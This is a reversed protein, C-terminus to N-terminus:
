SLKSFSISGRSFALVIFHELWAWLPYTTFARIWKVKRLLFCKWGVAITQCTSLCCLSHPLANSHNYIRLYNLPLVSTKLVQKRLEIRLRREMCYYDYGQWKIPLWSRHSIFERNHLFEYCRGVWATTWIHPFRLLITPTHNNYLKNKVKVKICYENVRESVIGKRSEFPRMICIFFKSTAMVIVDSGHSVSSCISFCSLSVNSLCRCSIAFFIGSKSVPLLRSFRIDSFSLAFVVLSSNSFIIASTLDILYNIM